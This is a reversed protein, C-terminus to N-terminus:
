GVDSWKDNDTLWREQYSRIAAYGLDRIFNGNIAAGVLVGVVTLTLIAKRETLNVGIQECLKKILLLFAERWQQESIEEFGKELLTKLKSIEIMAAQKEANSNSGALSLIQLVYQKEAPTDARYGYCLGIKHITRVSLLLLAPVDFVLARAGYFGCAGGEVIATGIAWNHVSNALRDSLELDKSRLDQIAGVGGDKLIDKEDALFKGAANVGNLAGEIASPPVILHVVKSLVGTVKGLGNSIIGPEKNKWEDIEIIQRKEYETLENM